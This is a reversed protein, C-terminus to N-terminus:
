VAAPPPATATTPMEAGPLESAPVESGIRHLAWATAVVAILFGALQVVFGVLIVGGPAGSAFLGILGLLVGVALIPGLLACGSIAWDFLPRDATDETHDAGRIALNLCTILAPCALVLNRGLLVYLSDAFTADGLNAINLFVTAIVYLVIAVFYGAAAYGWGRRIHRSAPGKAAWAHFQRAVDGQLSV